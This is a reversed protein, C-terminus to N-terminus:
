SKAGSIWVSKVYVIDSRIHSKACDDVDLNFFHWGQTLIATRVKTGSSGSQICTLSFLQHVGAVYSGMVM